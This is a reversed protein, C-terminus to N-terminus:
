RLGQFLQALPCDFGTLLPSTLTDDIEFVTTEENDRHIFIRQHDPEVVWVEAVGAALFLAVKSM